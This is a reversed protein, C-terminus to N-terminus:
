RRRSSSSGGHGRSASSGSQPGASARGRGNASRGADGSSKANASTSSRDHNNSNNASRVASARSGMNELARVCTSSSGTSEKVSSGFTSRSAASLLETTCRDHADTRVSRCAGYLSAVEQFCAKYAAPRTVCSILDARACFPTQGLVPLTCGYEVLAKGTTATGLLCSGWSAQSGSCNAILNNTNAVLDLAALPHVTALQLVEASKKIKGLNNLAYCSATSTSIDVLCAKLATTVSMADCTSPPSHQLAAAPTMGTKKSTSLSHLMDLSSPVEQAQAGTAAFGLAVCVAIVQNVSKLM